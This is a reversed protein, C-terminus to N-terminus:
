RGGIPGVVAQRQCPAEFLAAVARVALTCAPSWMRQAAQQAERNIAVDPHTIFFVRSV